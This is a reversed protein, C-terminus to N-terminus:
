NSLKPLADPNPTLFFDGYKQARRKMYYVKDGNEVGTNVLEWGYQGVINAAEDLSDVNTQIPGGKAFVVLNANTFLDFWTM